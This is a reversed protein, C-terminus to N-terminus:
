PALRETIWAGEDLRFVIRDHLRAKRGQWFEFRDPVIRFGGWHDPRPVEAGYRASLDEVAEELAERNPVVQSQPSAASALRSDAPRSEFYANSEEASTKEVRGEVRVQREMEGWWFTACIFPNDALETGKRSEYNTFFVLGREDLGRLLVFRASPRGEPSVTSVCMATPEVAQAIRAEDLWQALQAFPSALVSDETLEGRTYESRDTM